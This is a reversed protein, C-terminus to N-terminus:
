GQGRVEDLMQRFVANDPDGSLAAQLYFAAQRPHGTRALIRALVALIHGNFPWLAAAAAARALAEDALGLREAIQAARINYEADLPALALAQGALTRAARLKGRDMCQGALTFMYGANDRRAGRLAPGVP